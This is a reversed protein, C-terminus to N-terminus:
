DKARLLSIVQETYVDLREVLVTSLSERQEITAPEIGCITILDPCDDLQRAVNIVHLIDAEHLSFHALKKTSVVDDPTFVRISGAPLGMLCCDIIFARKRGSLKHVLSLGGTGGDVFEVDPFEDHRGALRSLVEIGVGEDAMLPNGLGIVVTDKQMLGIQHIHREAHAYLVLHM